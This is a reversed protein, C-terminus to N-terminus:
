TVWTKEFPLAAGHQVVWAPDGDVGSMEGFTKDGHCEYCIVNINEWGHRGGYQRALRHEM